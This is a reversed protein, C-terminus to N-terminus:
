GAFYVRGPLCVFFQHSLDVMSNIPFSVIEVPGNEIAFQLLNGSPLVDKQLTDWSPWSSVWSPPDYGHYRNQKQTFKAEKWVYLKAQHLKKM